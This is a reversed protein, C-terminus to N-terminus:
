GVPAAHQQARDTPVDGLSRSRHEERGLVRAAGDGCIDMVAVGRRRRSRHQGRTEQATRTDRGAVPGRDPQAPRRRRRNAAVGGLRTPAGSGESEEGARAGSHGIRNAQEHGAPVSKASPCGVALAVLARPRHKWEGNADVVLSVGDEAVTMAPSAHVGRGKQAPRLHHCFTWACGGNRRDFSAGDSENGGDPRPLAADPDRDVALDHAGHVKVGLPARGARERECPRGSESPGCLTRMQLRRRRAAVSSASTTSRYRRAEARGAPM